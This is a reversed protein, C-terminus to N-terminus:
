EAVNAAAESQIKAMLAAAAAVDGSLILATLDAATSKRQKFEQNAKVRAAAAAAEAKKANNSDIIASRVGSVVDALACGDSFSVGGDAAVSVTVDAALGAEALMAGLRGSLLKFTDQFKAVKASIEDDSLVRASRGSGGGTFGDRHNVSAGFVKKWVSVPGDKSIEAGNDLYQLKGVSCLQRGANHYTREITILANRAFGKTVYVGPTKVTFNDDTLVVADVPVAVVPAGEVPDAAAPVAAAEVTNVNASVAPVAVVEAANGKKTSKSM